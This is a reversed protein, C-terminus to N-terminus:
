SIPKSFENPFPVMGRDISDVPAPTSQPKEEPQEVKPVEPPVKKMEEITKILKQWNEYSLTIVNSSASGVQVKNSLEILERDFPVNHNKNHITYLVDVQYGIDSAFQEIEKEKGNDVPQEQKTETEDPQAEQKNEPTEDEKVVCMGDKKKTGDPCKVDANKGAFVGKAGIIGKFLANDVTSTGANEEDPTTVEGGGEAPAEDEKIKINRGIISSPAGIKVGGAGKSTDKPKSISCVGGVCGEELKHKEELKYWIERLKNTDPTKKM